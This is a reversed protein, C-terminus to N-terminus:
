KEDTSCILRLPFKGNRSSKVDGGDISIMVFGFMLMKLEEPPLGVNCAVDALSIGESDRLYSFVKPLIQSTERDINKPEDRRYGEQSMEVFLSHYKWDSLLGIEHLRFVLASLSVRWHKKIEILQALTGNGLPQAFLGAEPMLFSSAFIAAESEIDRRKPIDRWWHLVLHGLEHACDMRSREPSKFTNLFMFPTHGSRWFSYADVEKCDEMLSYVRVGHSEILRIMNPIPGEGLGWKSRVIKAATRPDVGRLKPVDPEPLSFQEELWDNLMCAFQGAATAKDRQRATVTSLSRFSTSGVPLEEVDPGEFFEPPFGLSKALMQIHRRTPKFTGAEYSSLTRTTIGLEKSLAVKTLGRRTRALALRSPNFNTQNM